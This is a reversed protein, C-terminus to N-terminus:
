KNLTYAYINGDFSGTIMETMGDYNLDGFSPAKSGIVPFGPLAEFGRGLGTIFNKEGYIFLEEIGDKDFDFATIRSNKGALEELKKERLIEGDLGVLTLTGTSDLVVLAKQRGAEMVSKLASSVPVPAIYFVGDLDLPFGELQRGQEDWVNLIGAQTLFVVLRRGDHMFVPGSLSIGGGKQPWGELLDGKSDALFIEGSFSKPYFATLDGDFAPPVLLSKKFNYGFAEEDGGSQNLFVLKKDDNRFFVLRGKHEVPSFSNKYGTFVPYPATLEGASDFRYLTGQGAFVFLSTEGDRPDKAFLLSSNKEVKSKKVTDDYPSQFVLDEEKNIYVFKYDGPGKLPRCFVDTVAQNDLKRPFGPFALTKNGAVGAASVDLTIETDSFYVTLLGKEYLKLVGALVTNTGLFAPLKSSLDYYLFVNANKRSERTIEKYEPTRTLTREQNYDNVIASLVEPNMSFFAFDELEVFYPTELGKVFMSVVYQLFGPLEIKRIKVDDLILSSSEDLFLSNAIKEMAFDWKDKHSIKVFVVPEIVRDVTFLGAESGIWDFLLKDIGIGFAFMSAENIDTIAKKLDQGKFSLLINLVENFSPFNISTYVNASDPLYKLVQLGGPPHAMFDKLLPNETKLGTYASAFIKENSIKFTIASLSNFSVEKLFAQLEPDEKAITDAFSKSNLYIKAFGGEKIKGELPKLAGTATISKGNKHNNYLNEINALQTSFFSLNNHFSFFFDNENITYHLITAAGKQITNVDMGEINVMNNLLPLLRTVAGTLGPDFVLASTFDEYVVLDCRVNLLQNFFYNKSLETSKFQMLAKYVSRLDESSSFVVDAARLDIVNDYIDKISDVKIYVLFEGPLYDDPSQLTSFHWIFLAATATVLVILVILLTKGIVSLIKKLAEM